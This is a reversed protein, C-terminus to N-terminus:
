TVMLRWWNALKIWLSLSWKANPSTWLSHKCSSTPLHDLFTWKKDVNMGYFIDVRPTPSDFFALIKDIYNTFLGKLFLKLTVFFNRILLNSQVKFFWTSVEKANRLPPCEFVLKICGFELLIHILIYTLHWNKDMEIMFFLRLTMLRSVMQLLCSVLYVLTWIM